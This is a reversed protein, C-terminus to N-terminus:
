KSKVTFNFLSTINNIIQEALMELGPSNPHQGLHTKAKAIPFIIADKLMFKVKDDGAQGQGGSDNCFQSAKLMADKPLKNIFDQIEEKFRLINLNELIKALLESKQLVRNDKTTIQLGAAELAIVLKEQPTLNLAADARPSSAPRQGGKTTLWDKYSPADLNSGLCARTYHKQYLDWHTQCLELEETGSVRGLRNKMINRVHIISNRDCFNCQKM